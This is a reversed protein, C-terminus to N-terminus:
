PRVLPGAGETETLMAKRSDEAIPGDKVDYWGAEQVQQQQHQNEAENPRQTKEEHVHLEGDAHRDERHSGRSQRSQLYREGRRLREHDASPICRRAHHHGHQGRRDANQGHTQGSHDVVPKCLRSLVHACVGPGRTCTAADVSLGHVKVLRRSNRNRCCCSCRSQRGRLFRCRPCPHYQVEPLADVVSAIQKRRDQRRCQEQPHHREKSLFHRPVSVPEPALQALLRRNIPNANM